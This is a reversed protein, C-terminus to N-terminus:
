NKPHAMKSALTFIQGFVSKFVSFIMKLVMFPSSVTLLREAPVTHSGINRCYYIDVNEDCESIGINTEM